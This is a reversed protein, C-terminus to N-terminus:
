TIRLCGSFLHQVPLVACRSELNGLVMATGLASIFLRAVLVVAFVLPSPRWGTRATEPFTDERERQIEALLHTQTPCCTVDSHFRLAALTVVTFKWWRRLEEKWGRECDAECMTQTGVHTWRQGGATLFTCFM